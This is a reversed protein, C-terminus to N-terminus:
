YQVFLYVIKRYKIAFARNAFVSLFSSKPHIKISSGTCARSSILIREIISKNLFTANESSLCITIVVCSLSKKSSIFIFTGSLSKLELNISNLPRPLISYFKLNIILWYFLEGGFMTTTLNITYRQLPYTYNRLRSSYPVAFM